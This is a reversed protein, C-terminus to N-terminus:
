EFAKQAQKVLEIAGTMLNKLEDASINESSEEAKNLGSIFIDKAYSVYMASERNSKPQPSRAPDEPTGKSFSVKKQASCNFCYKRPYGAKEEYNVEVGCEACKITKEM